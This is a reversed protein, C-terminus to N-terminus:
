VASIASPDLESLPMSLERFIPLIDKAKDGLTAELSTASESVVKMTFEDSKHLRAALWIRKLMSDREAYAFEPVLAQNTAENRPRSVPTGSPIKRDGLSLTVRSPADKTMIAAMSSYPKRMLPRIM